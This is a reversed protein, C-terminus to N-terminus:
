RAEAESELVAAQRVFRQVFRAVLSRAHATEQVRDFLADPDGGEEVIRTARARIYGRTVDADFEPHFQVCRIHDGIAYVAHPELATSGLSRAGDPLRVVSELHSANAHFPDPLGELLVDEACITVTVTGIERGRPNRAVHGGLAQAVIQHGFCIGLIPVRAAALERIYAETRLMWQARETVNSSSGTIIVASLSKISPLPDDTRADHEIWLGTWAGDASAQIWSAFDGRRSSVEAV